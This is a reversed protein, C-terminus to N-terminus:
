PIACRTFRVAPLSSTTSPAQTQTPSGSASTAAAASSAASADDHDHSSETDTGPCGEGPVAIDHAYVELAFFQLTDSDHTSYTENGAALEIVEDYDEAYHEIYEWGLAPMHYLRHMLDSAWFTNAPSQAVTYGLACM